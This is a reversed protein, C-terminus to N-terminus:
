TSDKAAREPVCPRKPHGAAALDVQNVVWANDASKVVTFPVFKLCGPRELQVVVQRTTADNAPISLTDSAGRGAPEVQAAGGPVLRYPAGSLYAQMIVLRREYDPPDKTKSAPGARTGWLEAMRGLNSDAAAQMFSRVALEPSAAPGASSSPGPGGGCAALVLPVALM